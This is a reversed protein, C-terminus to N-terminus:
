SRAIRNSHPCAITGSAIQAPATAPASLQAPPVPNTTAALHTPATSQAPLIVEPVIDLALQKLAKTLAAPLNRVARIPPQVSAPPTPSLDSVHARLAPMDEELAVTILYGDGDPEIAYTGGSGSLLANEVASGLAQLATRDGVIAAMSNWHNPASIHLIQQSM